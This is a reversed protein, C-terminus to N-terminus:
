IQSYLQLGESLVSNFVVIAEQREASLLLRAKWSKIGNRVETESSPLSPSNLITVGRAPLSFRGEACRYDM